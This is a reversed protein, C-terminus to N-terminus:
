PSPAQSIKPNLLSARCNALIAVGNEARYQRLLNRYFTYDDDTFFTQQRGNGRQTVHYPIGPIVIRALGAM